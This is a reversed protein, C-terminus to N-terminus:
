PASSAATAAGSAAVSNRVIIPTTPKGFKAIAALLFEGTAKSLWGRHAGCGACRLSALHSGCSSGCVVNTAGCAVCPVEFTRELWITLGNLPTTM